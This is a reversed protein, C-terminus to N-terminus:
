AVSDRAQSVPGRRGAPGSESEGLTSLRRIECRVRDARDDPLAAPSLGRLANDLTRFDDAVRRSWVKGGDEAAQEAATWAQEPEGLRAWLCGVRTMTLARSRSAEPSHTAYAAELRKITATAQRPDGTRMALDFLGHGADGLVQGEDAYYIWTEDVDDSSGAAFYDDCAGVARQCARGDAIRGFARAEVISVVCRGLPPLQRWALRALNVVELAHTTRGLYTLQRSMSTATHARQQLDDAEGALHLATLFFREALDDEGADFCAWGVVDGLRATASQWARRVSGTMSAHRAARCAWDFQGGMAARALGGGYQHDWQEFMGISRQLATVHAMELRAPVPDPAAPRLGEDPAAPLMGFWAAGALRVTERASRERDVSLASGIVQDADESPAPDAWGAAAELFRQREAITTQPPMRRSDYFGLQADSAAGLVARLAARYSEDPWRIRGKELKGIYNKDLAAVRGRHNHLWENVLDALEQRGLCAGPTRRSPTHERAYQLHRNDDAM